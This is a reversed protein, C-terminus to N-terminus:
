DLDLIEFIVFNTSEFEEEFNVKYCTRSSCSLTNPSRSRAIHVFSFVEISSKWSSTQQSMEFM